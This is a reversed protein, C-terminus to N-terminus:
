VGNEGGGNMRANIKDFFDAELNDEGINQLVFSLQEYLDNNWARLERVDDTAPPPELKLIAM